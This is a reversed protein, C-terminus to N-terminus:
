HALSARLGHPTVVADNWAYQGYSNLGRCRQRDVADVITCVCEVGEALGMQWLPGGCLVGIAHPFADAAVRGAACSTCPFANEQGGDYEGAHAPGSLEEGLHNVNKMLLRERLYHEM